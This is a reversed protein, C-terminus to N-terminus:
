ILHSITTSSLFIFICRNCKKIIKTLNDNQDLKIGLDNIAKILNQQTKNGNFSEFYDTTIMVNNILYKKQENYTKLNEDVRIKM